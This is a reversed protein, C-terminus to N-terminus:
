REALVMRIGPEPRLTICPKPSIRQGPALTFQFRQAVAALVLVAEMMAFAGGLCVRPGGSFPFYAYRPLRGALGDAWRDPDFKAPDAFYRPDRHLVWPCMLVATGAPVRYGGIVCEQQAERGIAYVPPYLRMSELLVRGAYELRPLDAVTPSRGGLVAWLEAALRAEVAPHQALLYCTWSLALATTEHGALLLTMIEDRLQRDTMGSGDEDRAHLLRALPDGRDPGGARRQRILDQLFAELRQVARRLRLNAPTPLWRPPVFLSAVQQNFVEQVVAFAAGVDGADGTVDLDFFIRAAIAMTLRMMEEHLDRTEGAQWGALAQEACAVMVGGYVALHDRLFAPQALRRQRLWHEGESSILGNGLVAHLHRLAFFNKRFHRNGTVLVYDILDPRNVQVVRHPGLHFSVADGYERACRTFFALNDRRFELLNGLLFHGRPGPPLPALSM